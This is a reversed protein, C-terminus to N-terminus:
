ESGYAECYGDFILTGGESVGMHCRLYVIVRWLGGAYAYLCTELIITLATSFACARKFEHNAQRRLM